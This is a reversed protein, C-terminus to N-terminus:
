VDDELVMRAVVWDIEDVYGIETRGDWLSTRDIEENEVFPTLEALRTSFLAGYFASGTSPGIFEEMAAEFHLDSAIQGTEERLERLACKRPTEGPEIRGGPLVWSGRQRHHVLLIQNKYRAAVLCFLLPTYRGTDMDSGPVRHYGVFQTGRRNRALAM